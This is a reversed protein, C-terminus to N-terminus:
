QIDDVSEQSLITGAHNAWSSEGELLDSENSCLVYITTCQVITFFITNPPIDMRSVDRQHEMPVPQIMSKNRRLRRRCRATSSWRPEPANWDPNSLPSRSPSDIANSSTSGQGNPTEESSQLFEDVAEDPVREVTRASATPSKGCRPHPDWSRQIEPVSGGDQTQLFCMQNVLQEYQLTTPIANYKPEPTITTDLLEAKRASFVLDNPRWTNSNPPATLNIVHCQGDNDMRFQTLQRPTFGSCTDQQSLRICADNYPLHITHDENVSHRITQVPADQIM